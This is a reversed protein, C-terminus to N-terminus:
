ARQVLRSAVADALALIANFPLMLVRLLPARLAGRKAALPPGIAAGFAAIGALPRILVRIEAIKGHQDHRILDMGEVWRGGIDARWFFVRTDGAALEDILEMTGISDFLIGFLEVAADRGLFPSKFIPSHMQVDPALAQAWDDLDRTQWAARYPHVDV